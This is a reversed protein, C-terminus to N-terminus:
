VNRNQFFQQRQGAPIPPLPPPAFGQRNIFYHSENISKSGTACMKNTVTATELLVGTIKKIAYTEFSYRFQVALDNNPRMCCHQKVDQLVLGVYINNCSSNDFCIQFM